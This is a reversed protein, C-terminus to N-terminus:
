LVAVPDTFDVVLQSAVAKMAETLVTVTQAFDQKPLICHFGQASASPATVIGPTGSM